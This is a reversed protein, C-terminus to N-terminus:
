NLNNEIILKVNKETTSTIAGLHIVIDIVRQNKNLFDILQVPDIKIIKNDIFYDKNLKNKKDISVIKHSYNEVLYNVLNSGIFGAGGTVLIM